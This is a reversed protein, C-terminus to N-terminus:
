AKSSRPRGGGGSSVSRARAASRRCLRCRSKEGRAGRGRRSRRSGVGARGCSSGGRGTGLGGGEAARSAPAIQLGLRALLRASRARCPPAPRVAPLTARSPPPPAPLAAATSPTRSCGSGKTNKIVGWLHRLTFPNDVRNVSLTPCIM